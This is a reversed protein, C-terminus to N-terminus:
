SLFNSIFMDEPTDNDDYIILLDPKRTQSIVSQIALPLFTHYRGKTSISCLIKNKKNMKGM